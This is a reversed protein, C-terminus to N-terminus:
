KDWKLGSSQSGKVPYRLMYMYRAVQLHLNINILILAHFSEKKYIVIKMSLGQKLQYVARESFLIKMVGVLSGM